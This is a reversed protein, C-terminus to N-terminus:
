GAYAFYVKGRVPDVITVSGGRGYCYFSGAEQISRDAEADRGAEMPIM